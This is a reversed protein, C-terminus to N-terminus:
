RIERSNRRQSRKIPMKLNDTATQLPRKLLLQEQQGEVMDKFSQIRLLYKESM